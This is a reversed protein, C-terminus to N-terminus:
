TVGVQKLLEQFKGVQDLLQQREKETQEMSQALALMDAGNNIGLKKLDRAQEGTIMVLSGDALAALLTGITVLVRGKFKTEIVEKVKPNVPLKWMVDTLAPHEHFVEDAKIMDAGMQQLQAGTFVHGFQCKVIHLERVLPSQSNGNNRCIPCWTYALSQNIETVLTPM